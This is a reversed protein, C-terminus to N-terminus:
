LCMSNKNFGLTLLVRYNHQHIKRLLIKDLHTNSCIKTMRNIEVSSMKGLTFLHIEINRHAEQNQLHLLESQVQIRYM